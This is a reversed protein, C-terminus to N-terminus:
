NKFNDISCDAGATLRRQFENLVIRSTTGANARLNRQPHTRAIKVLKWYKHGLEEASMANLEQRNMM